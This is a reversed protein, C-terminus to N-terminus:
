PENKIIMFPRIRRSVSVCGCIRFMPLLCNDTSLEVSDLYMRAQEYEMRAINVFAINNYAEGKGSPYKESLLLARRAMASVSDLNRYHYAYSLSNLGDVTNVKETRGCASFFLLGLIGILWM